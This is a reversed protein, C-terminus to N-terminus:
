AARELVRAVVQRLEPRKIAYRDFNRYANIITSHDRGGLRRGIQPFSMGRKRFIQVVCARARVDPGFRSASIILDSSTRLERAVAAIIESAFVHRTRSPQASPQPMEVPGALVRTLADLPAMRQARVLFDFQPRLNLPVRNRPLYHRQCFGTVSNVSLPEGCHGCDREVRKNHHHHACLGSKNGKGLRDGCTRCKPLSLARKENWHDRCLGTKSNYVLRTKCGKARCIM